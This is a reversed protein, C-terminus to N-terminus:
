GFQLVLLLKRLIIVVTDAFIGLLEHLVLVIEVVDDARRVAQEGGGVGFLTLATHLYEALQILFIQLVGDNRM